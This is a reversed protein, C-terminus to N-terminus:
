GAEAGTAWGVMAVTGPAPVVGDDHKHAQLGPRDGPQFGQRRVQSVAGDGFRQLRDIIEIRARKLRDFRRTAGAPISCRSPGAPM